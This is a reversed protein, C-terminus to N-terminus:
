KNFLLTKQDKLLAAGTACPGTEKFCHMKDDEGEISKLNVRIFAGRQIPFTYFLSANIEFKQTKPHRKNSPPM